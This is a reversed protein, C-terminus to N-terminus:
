PTVPKLTASGFLVAFPRCWILVTQQNARSGAPIEHYFTGINTLRSVNTFNTLSRDEALYVYLEPGADSKFETFSLYRQQTAPNLYLAVKGSVSHTENVFMGVSVLSLSSMSVATGSAPTTTGSAPTTTGSAPSTTASVPATAGPLLQQVPLLEPSKVCATLLGALGLALAILHLKM